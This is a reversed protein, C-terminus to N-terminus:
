VDCPVVTAEFKRDDDQQGAESFAEKRFAPYIECGRVREMKSHATLLSHIADQRAM